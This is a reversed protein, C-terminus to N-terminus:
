GLDLSTTGTSPGKLVGGRRMSRDLLVALEVVEVTDNGDEKVADDIMILCFPCATSILRAGTALAEDHPAGPQGAQGDDRRWGCARGARGAASGGERPRRKMEIQKVGPVADLSPALSTSFGTTGASIAPITPPHSVGRDVVGPSWPRGDTVLHGPAGRPPHGRLEGGLDPYENEMTNFCHPCSTSSRRAAGGERLTAINAKADYEQFLYENGM